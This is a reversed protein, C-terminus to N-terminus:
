LINNSTNIFTRLWQANYKYYSLYYKIESAVRKVHDKNLIFPSHCPEMETKKKKKRKNKRSRSNAYFLSEIVDNNYLEILWPDYSWLEIRYGMNDTESYTDRLLELMMAHVVDLTSIICYTSANYILTMVRYIIQRYYSVLSTLLTEPVTINRRFRVIMTILLRLRDEVDNIIKETVIDENFTHLVPHPTREYPVLTTNELFANGLPIFKFYNSWYINNPYQVSQHDVVDMEVSTGGDDDDESNESIDYSHSSYSDNHYQETIEEEDIGKILRKMNINTYTSMKTGYTNRSKTTWQTDSPEDLSGYSVFPTSNLLLQGSYLCTLRQSVQDLYVSCDKEHLRCIHYQGCKICGYFNPVGPFVRQINSRDDRLCQHKTDIDYVRYRVQLIALWEDVMLKETASLMIVM